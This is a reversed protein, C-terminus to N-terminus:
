ARLKHATDLWPKVGLQGAESSKSLWEIAANQNKGPVGNGSCFYQGLLFKGERHGLLASVLCHKASFAKDKAIGEGRNLAWAVEINCQANSLFAGSKYAIFGEELDRNPNSSRTLLHGLNVGAKGFGGNLSKWYFSKAREYDQLFGNAGNEVWNAIYFAARAQGLNAAEELFQNAEKERGLKRLAGSLLWLGHGRDFAVIEEAIQCAKQYDYEHDVGFYFIRYLIEKADRSGSEYLLLVRQHEEFRDQSFTKNFLAETEPNEFKRLEVKTVQANFWARVEESWQRVQTDSAYNSRDNIWTESVQLNDDNLHPNDITDMM